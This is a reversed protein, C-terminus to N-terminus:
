NIFRNIVSCCLQRITGMVAQKMERMKWCNLFPNLTSNLFLLNLSISWAIDLLPKPAGPISFLPLLIGCPFYCAVLTMLIWLASSVTKRYRTINLPVGQRNPDRQHVHDQVAAQRHRLTLFIKTYCFISTAACFILLICGARAAILSTYLSIIEIGTSCLWFVAILVRVRKLTVVHRYRLGLSLALFRDVSIATLTLLSVGCFFVSITNSLIGAYFCRRSHEPSMIFFVYLPQAILGVCLDTSALCFVLLKSPSHLSSVKHLASIILVNGLFATVSLTVNLVSIVIKIHLKDLGTSCYFEQDIAHNINETFNM